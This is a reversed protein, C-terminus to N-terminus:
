LTNQIINYLDQVKDVIIPLSIVTSGYVAMHYWSEVSHAFYGISKGKIHGFKEISKDSIHGTLAPRGNRQDILRQYPGWYPAEQALFSKWNSSLMNGELSQGQSM